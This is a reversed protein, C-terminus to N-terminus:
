TGEHGPTLVAGDGRLMAAPEAPHLLRRQPVDGAAPHTGPPPVTHNGAAGALGFRLENLGAPPPPAPEYQSIGERGIDGDDDGISAREADGHHEVHKLIPLADHLSLTYIETTATDNFFFLSFFLPHPYM